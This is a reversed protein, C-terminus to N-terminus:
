ANPTASTVAPSQIAALVHTTARTRLAVRRRNLRRPAMASFATWRM